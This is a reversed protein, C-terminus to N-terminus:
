CSLKKNKQEAEKKKQEQLLKEKEEGKEKYVEETLKKAKEREMQDKQLKNPDNEHKMLDGRMDKFLNIMEDQLCRKLISRVKKGMVGAQTLSISEIEFDMESENLDSLKFTGECEEIGSEGRFNIEM